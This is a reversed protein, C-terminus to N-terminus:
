AFGQCKPKVKALSKYFSQYDDDSVESPSRLWLAKSENVREWDQVTEYKKEKEPKEESSDDGDEVGSEDEDETESAVFCLVCNKM